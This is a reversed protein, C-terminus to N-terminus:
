NVLVDDDPKIKKETVYKVSECEPVHYSVKLDTQSPGGLIQELRESSCVDQIPFKPKTEIEELVADDNSSVEMATNDNFSVQKASMYEKM